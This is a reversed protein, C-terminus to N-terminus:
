HAGFPATFLRRWRVATVFPIPRWSSRDYSYYIFLPAGQLNDRPIFGYYRSDLSEDRNDGLAFLSDHPVVLPGWNRLDPAYGPGAPQALYPTQWRRMRTASASDVAPPEQHLTVYPEAVQVGNRWLRGDQMAITDGPLGVVRKLLVLDEIPSRVVVVEDHRPERIAPLHRRALPVEAGYLLKNVFLFDDVLVTREMSGSTIRFARVVFTSLLFWVTLAIVISKTWEWLWRTVRGSRSLFRTM